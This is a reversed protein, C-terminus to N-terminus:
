RTPAGAPPAAAARKARVRWFIIGALLFIVAGSGAGIAQSRIFDRTTGRVILVCDCLAQGGGAPTAYWALVTPAILIAALDGLLAGVLAFILLKKVAGM